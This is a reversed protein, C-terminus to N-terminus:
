WFQPEILQCGFFAMAHGAGNAEHFVHNFNIAIFSHRYSLIDHFIPNLISHGAAGSNLNKIVTLSDGEIVVRHFGLDVAFLIARECVLAEAVFVNAIFSHSYACAGMLQGETNRAIVRSVSIKTDNFFSADFNFKIMGAVLPCWALHPSVRPINTVQALLSLEQGRGLIFGALDSISQRM